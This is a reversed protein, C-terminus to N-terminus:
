LTKLYQILNAMDQEPLSSFPMFSMFSKGDVYNEKLIQEKAIFSTSGGISSLTTGNPTKRFMFGDISKGNKKTIRYIQYGAEVADNPKIIATLLHHPDRDAFGGLAPALEQGKGKAQHCFLCSQFTVLGKEADGGNKKFYTAYHEIKEDAEKNQKRLTADIDKNLAKAVAHSPHAFSLRQQDDTTLQDPQIEKTKLLHLIFLQGQDYGKITNIFAMKDGTATFLHKLAKGGSRMDILCLALAAETKTSESAEEDDLIKQFLAANAKPVISLADFEISTIEKLPKRTVLAAVERNMGPHHFSVTARLGLSQDAPDASTLLKKLVPALAKHLHSSKLEPQATLALEVFDKTELKPQLTKLIEPDNLSPSIAVLTSTDFELSGNKISDVLQKGKAGAPLFKAAENLNAKAQAQSAPSNLYNQLEAPYNELAMFALFSQFNEEYGDGFSFYMNKGSVQSPKAYSVLMDITDNNAVGVAGLTRLVQEKVMYHPDSILPKTLAVVEEVSPKFTELSRIAERKIDPSGSAVMSELLSYDYAGLGELAWLAHIRTVDDVSTDSALKILEPVLEKAGRDVIETWASRKEWLVEAKLHSLLKSNSAKAINPVSHGKQSEHRVRWIRGHKKDRDPHDRDVENHSVIKNYWDVIYLCGDPGFEINVPRFWDDKCKLFDPLHKSIVSGDPNRDAVVLNISSTIPNALFGANKYQDPFGKSGNEDYALGSIGTGEVYFDHFAKPFPQYPRLRDNGIGKYGMYPHMPTHSFGWDNAETGYWQGNGKLAFGWINNFGNNVVELKEGDLSFRAIKSFHIPRKVGSKTAIVNGKNLAGHSFHIWGGPGRVLTHALTHTDSIGFGTLTTEFSDEKGDGNEDSLYLMESGHAVFVGDKYPLFSQPITMGDAFVPIQGTVTQTPDDIRLVKDSGVTERKYLALIRSVDKSDASRRGGKPDIPYMEATGTWMRGAPDFAIDIPNILGNAESAVLEIVFGEPLIFQKLQEEPTLAKTRTSQQKVRNKPKQARGGQNQALAEGTFFLSTLGLLIIHKSVNM